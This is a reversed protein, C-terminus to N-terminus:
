KGRHNSHKVCIVVRLDGLHHAHEEFAAPFVAHEIVDNGAPEAEFRHLVVFVVHEEDIQDHGIDVSEADESFQGCTVIGRGDHHHAPLTLVLKRDARQSGAGDVTEIFVGGVEPSQGVNCTSYNFTMAAFKRDRGRRTIVADEKDIGISVCALQHFTKEGRFRRTEDDLLDIQLFELLQQEGREVDVRDYEPRPYRFVRHKIRQAMEARGGIINGGEHKGAAARALGSDGRKLETRVVIKKKM